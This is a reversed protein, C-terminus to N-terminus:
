EEKAKTVADIGLFELRGINFWGSPSVEAKVALLRM